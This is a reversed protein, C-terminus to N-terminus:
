SQRQTTVLQVLGDSPVNICLELAARIKMGAGACGDMWISM